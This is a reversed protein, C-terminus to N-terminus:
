IQKILEILYVIANALLPLTIIIFIFLVGYLIYFQPNGNQLFKFRGIFGKIYLLPIDILAMEIKDYPHTESHIVNPFVGKIEGEKKNM